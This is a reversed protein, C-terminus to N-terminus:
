KVTIEGVCYKEATCCPSGTVCVHVCKEEGMIMSQQLCRSMTGLAVCCSRMAFGNWSCYNADTLGLSGVWGM